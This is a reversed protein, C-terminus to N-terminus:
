KLTNKHLILGSAPAIEKNKHDTDWFILSNKIEELTTEHMGLLFLQGMMMRIQYRMFGPGKVRYIFSNKPFFNAQYLTNELIESSLVTRVFKTNESPRVTYKKFNHKGEFLKAGQQMLEIDLVHNKGTLLPACFPHIKEGHSFLYHYEKQKTNQLIDFDASVSEIKLIQIDQPLNKNLQHFLWDTEYFTKTTLHCLAENASVMTDTRGSALTKFNDHKFIFRFTKELTGQITKVEPQKQWGHFRFGLYQFQILYYSDNPYKM